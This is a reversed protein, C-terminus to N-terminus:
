RYYQVSVSSGFADLLALGQQQQNLHNTWAPSIPEVDSPNPVPAKTLLGLCAVSTLLQTQQLASLLSGARDIHVM